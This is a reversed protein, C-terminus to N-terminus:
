DSLSPMWNECRRMARLRKRRPFAMRACCVRWAIRLVRATVRWLWVGTKSTSNPSITKCRAMCIAKKRARARPPSIPCAGDRAISPCLRTGRANWLALPHFILLRGNRSFKKWGRSRCICDKLLRPNTPFAATKKRPANQPKIFLSGRSMFIM